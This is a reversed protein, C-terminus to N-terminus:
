NKVQCNLSDPKAQIIIATDASNSSLVDILINSTTVIGTKVALDLESNSTAVQSTAFTSLVIILVRLLKTWITQPKKTKATM